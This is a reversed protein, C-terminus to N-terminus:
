CFHQRRQITNLHHLDSCYRYSIGEGFTCQWGKLLMVIGNNKTIKKFYHVIKIVMSFFLRMQYDFFLRKLKM